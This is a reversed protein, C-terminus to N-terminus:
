TEESGAKCSNKIGNEAKERDKQWILQAFFIALYIYIFKLTQLADVWWLNIYYCCFGILLIKTLESKTKFLNRVMTIAGTIIYALYTFLGPYAYKIYQVIYYNDVSKIYITEGNEAIVSAGFGPQIGRGLLPNLWDMKFIEPLYERYNESNNLTTMDAGFNVAIETGLVHDILVTIQMLIYNGIRTKYTLALFAAFGFLIMLSYFFTKKKNAGKSLLLIMFVEVLALGQSSRSGTLFINGLIMVLLVPRKYLYIEEKEYDYCAMALLLILLLGYGIPHGCPGMIRYYGSRYCNAVVNPVTSLFQLYLSHGAAFEVFGYIALFYSCGIITKIARKIGIVYRIAFVLMYLTLLELFVLMFSNINIRFVMTYATVFLYLMLPITVSCRLFTKIFLNFIKYQILAYVVLIINAFRSSTIDYGIHIGFYQPMVFLAILLFMNIAFLLKLGRLEPNKLLTNYQKKIEETQKKIDLANM